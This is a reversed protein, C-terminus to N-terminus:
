SEGTDIVMSPGTLGLLFSVRNATASLATGTSSYPGMELGDIAVQSSAVWDNNCLGVFVGVTMTDDIVPCRTDDNLVRADILAEYCLELVLRQHPDMLEAEKSNLQFYGPDFGEADIDELLGAYKTRANWLWADPIAAIADLGACLKRHFLDPNHCGGPFRCSMGIVAISSASSALVAPPPIPLSSVSSGADFSPVENLATPAYSNSSYRHLKRNFEMLLLKPTPFDFLLTPSLHNSASEVTPTCGNYTLIYTRYLANLRNRLEMMSLSDLGLHMFSTDEYSNNGDHISLVDDNNIDMRVESICTLLETITLVNDINKDQHHQIDDQNIINDNVSENVDVIDGEIDISQKSYRILISYGYNVSDDPRYQSVASIISAGGHIHFLLTPDQPQKCHVKQLYHDVSLSSSSCRTMAIVSTIRHSHFAVRLVFDRLAIGIQLQAHSPLVAVGLLQLIHGHATHLDEQCSFTISGNMIPSISDILQCYLVGVIEDDVTAIWCVRSLLRQRIRSKDIQLDHWCVVEIRHLSDIIDDLEITKQTVIVRKISYKKRCVLRHLLSYSSADDVSSSKNDVFYGHEALIIMPDALNITEPDM